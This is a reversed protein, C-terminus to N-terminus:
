FFLYLIIFITFLLVIIDMAYLDYLDTLIQSLLYSQDEQIITEEMNVKVKPTITIQPHTMKYSYTNFNKRQKKNSRPSEINESIETM